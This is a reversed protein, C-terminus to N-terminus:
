LKAPEFFEATATYKAVQSLEYRELLEGKLNYTEVRMPLGLDLDTCIRTKASDFGAGENPAVLFICWHGRPDFGEHTIAYGGVQRAQAQDRAFRALLPGLGAERVTHNSDAKALGSDVDIWWAGTYSLMGSERVRFQQANVAPAFAVKRGASPGKLYHLRVAFPTERVFLHIEQEPLLTGGVREQKKLRYSYTGLEQVAKLGLAVLTEPPERRMVEARAERSTGAASTPTATPTPMALGEAVAVASVVVAAGWLWRTVAPVMFPERLGLFQDEVLPSDDQDKVARGM